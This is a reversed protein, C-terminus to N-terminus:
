GYKLAASRTSTGDQNYNYSNPVDVNASVYANMRDEAMAAKEEANKQDLRHQEQRETYKNILLDKNVSLRATYIQSFILPMDYESLYEFKAIMDQFTLGTSPSRYADDTVYGGLVTIANEINNQLIEAQEM